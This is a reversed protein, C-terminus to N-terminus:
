LKSPQPAAPPKPLDYTKDYLIGMIARTMEDLRTGGTNNLLVILHRDDVQRTIVTNFGNIGGGHAVVSVTDQTNGIKATPVAWGYAYNNLVPKFMLEKSKASVLKDTYLAQDWLYLDEVTSYLSGAAYPISMDLYPATIIGSQRKEYGTARKQMITEHHDYGSSKMGLPDFINEKLAQEYTKGTIKEIIAGLLFYGSNNYVFKSGPEFALDGSTHTKVFDDVKYPNRSVNPFFGPQSTYSPIGSTHALLHHVTVRDGTEKRYDPLYETIKGDLKIKGQDVLQMILMSTFQKTISGLRFRTDPANPINWEMNAMGYGKKFIVRSKEAVLVSGNFQGLSHYLTMLEDIKKAKADAVPGSQAVAVAQAPLLSFLALVLLTRTSLKRGTTM